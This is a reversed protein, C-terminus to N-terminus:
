MFKFDNMARTVFFPLSYLTVPTTNFSPVGMLDTSTLTSSPEQCDATRSGDVLLSLYPQFSKVYLHVPTVGPSWVSTDRTVSTLPRTCFVACSLSVLFDNRSSSEWAGRLTFTAYFCM